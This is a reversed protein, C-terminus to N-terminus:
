GFYGTDLDLTVIPTFQMVPTVGKPHLVILARYEEDGVEDSFSASDATVYDGAQVTTSEGPVWSAEWSREIPTASPTIEGDHVVVVQEDREGRTAVIFVNRGFRPWDFWRFEDTADDVEILIVQEAFDVGLALEDSSFAVTYDVEVWNNGDSGRGVKLFVDSVEPM